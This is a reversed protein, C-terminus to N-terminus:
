SQTPNLQLFGEVMVGLWDYVLVSARTDDDHLKESHDEASSIDIRAAMALRLATLTRLWADFHEADVQVSVPHAILGTEPDEFIPTETTDCVIQDLRHGTLSNSVVEADALKRNVLGQETTQRYQSSEESDEFANPFLRALAPDEPLESTGGIDLSALLPDPDLPTESHSQLLLILQTVLNDLVGAEETILELLVGDSRGTM